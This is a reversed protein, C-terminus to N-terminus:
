KFLGTFTSIIWRGETHLFSVIVTIEEDGTENLIVQTKM